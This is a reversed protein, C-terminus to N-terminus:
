MTDEFFELSKKISGENGESVNAPLCVDSDYRSVATM